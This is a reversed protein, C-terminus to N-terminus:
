EFLTPQAEDPLTLGQVALVKRLAERYTVGNNTYNLFTNYWKPYHEYVYRLRTDDKFQCGFGCFMCGTRQMGQRYCDAIPINYKEICDWIDEELWISLPRSIQKRKDRNNFTNCKGKQMYAVRRTESECAMTGVIPYLKHEKSYAHFPEKKLKDCCASSVDYPESLLWRWKDAIRFRRAESVPLLARRAMEGDPRHKAYWALRATDKSILPFGYNAIVEAPKYQPYIIDVNYNPDNAYSRVFRVIEPYENGTNCFVAKIDPYLKRALWYVITSDKGGSWSVYGGGNLKTYFEEIVGLSHDIKQTLSWSQREKLEELTIQEEKKKM